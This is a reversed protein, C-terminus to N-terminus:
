NVLLANVSNLSSMRSGYVSGSGVTDISNIQGVAIGPKKSCGKSLQLAGRDCPM